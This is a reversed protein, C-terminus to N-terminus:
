EKTQPQPFNRFILISHGVRADHKRDLLYSFRHYPFSTLKGHDPNNYALGVLYQVSVALYPCLSDDDPLRYDIGYIEPDVTGFYALCIQGTHERDTYQKLRILDQGWDLNSDALFRYAKEPGGSALNFYSLHQPYAAVGTIVSAAALAAAPLRLRRSLFAAAAIVAGLPYVPLLYRLGINWNSVFSVLLFHALLPVAITLKTERSVARNAFLAFAGLVLLALSPLPTKLLFATIQYAPRNGAYIEGMFYNPLPDENNLSMSDMGQLLQAPLPIPTNPPLAAALRTFTRSALKVGAIPGGVGEFRFFAGVTIWAALYM